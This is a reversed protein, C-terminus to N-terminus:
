GAHAATSHLYQITAVDVSTICLSDCNFLHGDGVGGSIGEDVLLPKNIGTSLRM